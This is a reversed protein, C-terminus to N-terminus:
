KEARIENKKGDRQRFLVQLAVLKDGGQVAGGM